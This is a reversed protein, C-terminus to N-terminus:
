VSSALKKGKVKQELVILEDQNDDDCLRKVLEDVDNAIELEGEYIKGTPKERYVSHAIAQKVLDKVHLVNEKMDSYKNFVEVPNQGKHAGSKVEQSKLLSDVLNYVTEEKTNDTIPLGLLRAVKRKKEPSMADFKIVAKNIVQKKKYLIASEVEEDVVYFQTDPPYEGREWAQYSSAITPHVRLWAFQLERQPNRLDFYNDGDQLKEPSVHTTDDPSISLSYNWYPARPGLDVGLVKELKEKLKTVREIEIERETEDQIRQIYSANPDLGTRYKGDIEKYPFKFAGTGPVRTLGEQALGSQMTKFSGSYEKKLASIKGVTAGM